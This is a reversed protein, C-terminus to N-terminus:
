ERKARKRLGGCIAVATIIVGTAVIGYLAEIPIFFSEGLEPTPSVSVSSSPSPNPSSSVSPSPAPSLFSSPSSLPSPSPSQQTNAPTQIADLYPRIDIWDSWDLGGYKFVIYGEVGEENLVQVTENFLPISLPQEIKTELWVVMPKESNPAYRERCWQVTTRFAGINLYMPPYEIYIMPAVFDLWGNQVWLAGDQGIQTKPDWSPTGTFVAASIEVNPKVGKIYQSVDRVWENVPIQRWALREQM